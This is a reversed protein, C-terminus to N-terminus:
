HEVKGLKPMEPVKQVVDKKANTMGSSFLVILILILIGVGFASALLSGLSNYIKKLWESSSKDVIKNGQSIVFSIITLATIVLVLPLLTEGLGLVFDLVSIDNQGIFNESGLIDGSILPSVVQEAAYLVQIKFGDNQELLNFEFNINNEHYSVVPQIVKNRSAHTVVANVVQVEGGYILTLPILIDSSRIVQKGHNWFAIEQVFVPSELETNTVNDILLFRQEDGFLHPSFVEISENAYYRPDKTQISQSYTNNLSM